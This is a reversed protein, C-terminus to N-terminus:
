CAPRKRDGGGRLVALARLLHAIGSLALLAMGAPLAAKIIWRHGLGAAAASGENQAFSRATFDIGFHIVLAAFPLLFAAIGVIEIWARARAGLRERLVDIRVHAGKVYAYGLCFLFLLAHLHWELEQLRTSGFVTQQWAAFDALPAWAARSLNRTVVDFLTVAILALGAWAAIRGAGAVLREIAAALATARKM